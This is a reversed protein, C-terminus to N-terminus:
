CTICDNRVVKRAVHIMGMDTAADRRYLKMTIIGIDSMSMLM